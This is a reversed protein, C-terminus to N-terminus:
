EENQEYDIQEQLTSIINEIDTDLAEGFYEEVAWDEYEDELISKVASPVYDLEEWADQWTPDELMKETEGRV